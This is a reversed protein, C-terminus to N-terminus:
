MDASGGISIKIKNSFYVCMGNLSVFNGTDSRRLNELIFQITLTLIINVTIWHIHYLSQGALWDSIELMLTKHASRADTRKPIFEFGADRPQCDCRGYDTM